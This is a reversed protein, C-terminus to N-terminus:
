APAICFKPTMCLLTPAGRIVAIGEAGLAGMIADLGTAMM